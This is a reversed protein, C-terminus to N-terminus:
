SSWLPAAPGRFHQCLGTGYILSHKPKFEAPCMMLVAAGHRAGGTQRESIKVRQKKKSEMWQELSHIKREDNQEEEVNPMESQEQELQVSTCLFGGSHM